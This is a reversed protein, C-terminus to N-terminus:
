QETKNQEPAPKNRKIFDELRIRKKPIVNDNEEPLRRKVEKIQNERKESGEDLNVNMRSTSPVNEDEEFCRHALPLKREDIKRWDM